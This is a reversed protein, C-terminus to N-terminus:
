SYHPAGLNIKGVRVGHARKDAFRHRMTVRQNADGLLHIMQNLLNVDVYMLDFRPNFNPILGKPM